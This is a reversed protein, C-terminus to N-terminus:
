SIKLNQLCKKQPSFNQGIAWALKFAIGVGSFDKFGNQSTKLKPNVVAFARPIEQGPQHHDTIILDIGYNRAIEAERCANIGCDVTLIVKARKREAENHRKCQPRM